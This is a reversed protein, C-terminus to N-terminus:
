PSKRLPVKAILPPMLCLGSWRFSQAIMPWASQEEVLGVHEAVVLDVHEAVVLEVVHVLVLFFKAPFHLEAVVHDVLLALMMLM